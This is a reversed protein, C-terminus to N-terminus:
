NKLNNLIYIYKIYVIYINIKLKDLLAHNLIAVFLIEFNAQLLCLVPLRNIALTVIM